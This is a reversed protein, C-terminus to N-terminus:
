GCIVFKPRVMTLDAEKHPLNHMKLEFKGNLTEFCTIIQMFNSWIQRTNMSKGGCYKDRPHM